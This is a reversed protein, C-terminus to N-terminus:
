NKKDYSDDENKLLFVQEIKWLVLGYKQALQLAIQKADTLIDSTIFQLAVELSDSKYHAKWISKSKSLM